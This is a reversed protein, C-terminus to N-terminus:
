RVRLQPRGRKGPALRWHHACNRSCTHRDDRLLCDECVYAEAECRACSLVAAAPAPQGCHPCPRYSASPRLSQDVAIRKDFVFCEGEFADNPFEELYKLIGGDLQRVDRFGLTEMEVIAKECRIGGTCYILTTQDRHLNASRLYSSFEQFEDIAPDIAGSFKGLKTEYRNRTDIVQVSPDRLAERFETPSARRRLGPADKELLGPRGLTVIEPRLPAEFKNFPLSNATSFKVNSLKLGLEDRMRGIFASVGDNSGACTCNVGEAGTVCLGVVQFFAAASEITLAAEQARDSGWHTFEYFTAVCVAHTM